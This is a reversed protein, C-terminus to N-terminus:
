GFAQERYSKIAAVVQQGAVAPTVGPRLRGVVTMWSSNHTTAWEEGAFRLGEAASVPIWVDVPTEWTGVFGEPAVGIVTYSRGALLISSGIVNPDSGFERQWLGHGIVVVASGTPLVDDEPLIPRGLMTRTGLTQFYNGSVLAHKVERADAVLGLSLPNPHTYMAASAFGPVNDRVAVYMPYSFSGSNYEEGRITRKWQARVLSLPDAVHAPARLLLRDIIGFMTANAGVGLAFTIAITAALAPARHIQRLAYLVDHRFADIRDLMTLVRERHRAAALMDARGHDYPGFRRLAEEEARQRSMGQAMLAEVRLALHLRIEDDLESEVRHRRSM